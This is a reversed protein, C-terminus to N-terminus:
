RESGPPMVRPVAFAPLPRDAPAPRPPPWRHPGSHSSIYRGQVRHNQSDSSQCPCTPATPCIHCLLTSLIPRYLAVCYVIIICCLVCHVIIICGTEIILFSYCVASQVRERHAPHGYEKRTLSALADSHQLVPRSRTGLRCLQGRPDVGDQAVTEGVENRASWLSPKCLSFVSLRGDDQGREAVPLGDPFLQIAFEDYCSM